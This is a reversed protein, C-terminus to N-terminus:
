AICGGLLVLRLTLRDLATAARTRKDFPSTM